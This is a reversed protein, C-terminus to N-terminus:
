AGSMAERELGELGPINSLLNYGDKLIGYVVLPMFALVAEGIRNYYFSVDFIVPIGTVYTKARDISSPNCWQTPSTSILAACTFPRVDYILCAGDSLFPCYANQQQYRKESDQLARKTEEGAGPNTKDQWLQGCEKFIDGNQKLKERWPPYNKLFTSLTTEHHYLYYVIAECEQVNAQMYALCCHSCGRQCSITEGNNSVTKIQDARFKELIKRKKEIYDICFAERKRGIDSKYAIEKNLKLPDIVINKRRRSPMNGGINSEVGIVDRFM